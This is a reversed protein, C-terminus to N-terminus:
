YQYAPSLLLVFGIVTVKLKRTLSFELNKEIVGWFIFKGILRHAGPKARIFSQFKKILM